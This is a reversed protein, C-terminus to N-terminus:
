NVPSILILVTCYYMHPHPLPFLVTLNIYCLIHLFIVIGTYFDLVTHSFREKLQILLPPPNM